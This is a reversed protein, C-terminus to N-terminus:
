RKYDDLWEQIRAHMIHPTARTHVLVHGAHVVISARPEGAQHRRRIDCISVRTKDFELSILSLYTSSTGHRPTVSILRARTKATNLNVMDPFASRETSSKRLMFQLDSVTMDVHLPTAITSIVMHRIQVAALYPLTVAKEPENAAARMNSPRPKQRRLNTVTDMVTPAIYQLRDLLYVHIEIKCSGTDTYAHRKALRQSNPADETLTTFSDGLTFVFLDVQAGQRQDRLRFLGSHVAIALLNREEDESTRSSPDFVKSTQLFPITDVMARFLNQKRWGSIAEKNSEALANMDVDSREIEGIRTKDLRQQNMAVRLYALALWGPDERAAINVHSPSSANLHGIDKHRLLEFRSTLCQPDQIHEIGKTIRSLVLHTMATESLGCSPETVAQIRPYWPMVMVCMLVPSLSGSHCMLNDISVQSRVDNSSRTSSQELIIGSAGIEFRLNDHLDAEPKDFGDTTGLKVSAGTLNQEGRISIVNCSLGFLEAHNYLGVTDVEKSRQTRMELNKVDVDVRTDSAITAAIGVRSESHCSQLLRLKIEPVLLVSESLAPVAADRAARIRSAQEALLQDLFQRFTM